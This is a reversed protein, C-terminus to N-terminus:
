RSREVAFPPILEVHVDPLIEAVAVALYVRELEVDEVDEVAVRDPRHGIRDSRRETLHRRNERATKRPDCVLEFPLGMLMLITKADATYTKATLQLTAACSFAVPAPLTSIPKYGIPPVM